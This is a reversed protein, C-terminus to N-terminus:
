QNDSLDKLRYAEEGKMKVARSTTTSSIPDSSKMLKGSEPNQQSYGMSTNNLM